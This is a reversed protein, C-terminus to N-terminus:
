PTSDLAYVFSDVDLHGRQGSDNYTFIGINDGRYGGWKLPYEFELRTYKRGDLSFEFTARELANVRTRIWVDRTNGNIQGADRLLGDEEYGIHIIAAAKTLTLAGYNRGGNFHVLGSKQGSALQSVDLKFTAVVPQGSFYRVGITNGVTFFRGPQLAPYAHLRLWGKREHLSWKEARPQHNWQWQPSLRIDSFDDNGVPLYDKRARGPMAASLVLDGPEGARVATGALPWADQWIVPLLSLVRGDAHGGAGGHTLFYWRGDPTDVLGGQNIERNAPTSVLMQQVQYAGPRSATGPSGDAQEGYIFRSRRMVAVRGKWAVENNFFYYFGDLKYLKNGEASARQYISTGEGAVQAGERSMANVDADLLTTGDDSMRFLHPYWAGSTKSAVMYAKGDDDWLPCPDLWKSILLDRGHADKMPRVKWPGAPDRATAVFFGEEFSTFHVFFLEDHYRISGAYVGKGYGKMRDWNLDPGLKSLDDVVHGIARWNVLDRSHLVVMGPSMNITSSILYYDSGVRIVDPDSFDAPLIPNRYTGDRQDGWSRLPEKAEGVGLALHAALLAAVIHGRGSGGSHKQAHTTQCTGTSAAAATSGRERSPVLPSLCDLLTKTQAIHSSFRTRHGAIPTM